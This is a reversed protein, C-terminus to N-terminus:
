RAFLVGRNARGELFTDSGPSCPRRWSRGNRSERRWSIIEQSPTYQVRGGADRAEGDHSEAKKTEPKNTEPEPVFDVILDKGSVQVHSMQGKVNAIAEMNILIADDQVTVGNATGPHMMKSLHYGFLKLLGKAPIGAAKIKDVHLRFTHADALDVPGILDFRVPIKGHKKGGLDLENGNTSITIDSISAPDSKGKSEKKDKPDKADNKQESTKAEAGNSGGKEIKQQFLKTLSDSSVLVRGHQIETTKIFCQPSTKGKPVMEAVFNELTFVIGPQSVYEGKGMTLKSPAQPCPQQQACMTACVCTLLLIPM